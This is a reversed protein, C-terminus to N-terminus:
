QPVNGKQSHPFGTEHSMADVINDISHDHLTDRIIGFKDSETQLRIHITHGAQDNTQNILNPHSQYSIHNDRNYSLKADELPEYAGPNDFTIAQQGTEAAHLDALVAGLSHGTHTVHYDGYGQANAQTQIDQVFKRSEGYQDPANGISIQLDDDLDSGDSNIGLFRKVFQPTSGALVDIGDGVDPDTGRHAIIIEKTQHNVYAVGYYGTDTQGVDLKEWGKQQLEKPLIGGDKYVAQSMLAHEYPPVKTINRIKNPSLQNTLGDPKNGSEEGVYQGKFPNAAEQEAEQLISRIQEAGLKAEQLAAILRRNIPFVIDNMETFFASAGQGEWGGTQLPDVAQLVQQRIEDVLQAHREFITAIVTLKQYDAQIISANKTM